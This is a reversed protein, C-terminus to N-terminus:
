VITCRGCSGGSPATDKRVDKEDNQKTQKAGSPEFFGDPKGAASETPAAPAKEKAAEPTKLPPERNMEAAILRFSNTKDHANATLQELKKGIQSRTSNDVTALKRGISEEKGAIVKTALWHFELCVDVNFDPSAFFTEPHDGLLLDDIDSRMTIAANLKSLLLSNPFISSINRALTHRDKSPTSFALREAIESEKNALIRLAFKQHANYLDANFEKGLFAHHPNKNREDLVSLILKKVHYAQTILTHFSEHNTLAPTRLAEIKHGLHKLDADPCEFVIDTALRKKDHLTLKEFEDAHPAFADGRGLNKYPDKLSKLDEAKYQM